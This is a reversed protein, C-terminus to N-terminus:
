PTLALPQNTPQYTQGHVLFWKSILGMIVFVSSYVENSLMVYNLDM